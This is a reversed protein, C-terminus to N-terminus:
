KNLLFWVGVLLVGAGGLAVKVIAKWWNGNNIKGDLDVVDGVLM